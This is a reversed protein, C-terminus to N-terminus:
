NLALYAALVMVIFAAIYTLNNDSKPSQKRKEWEIQEPWIYSPDTLQEKVEAGKVKGILFAQMKKRASKSHKVDVWAETADKGAVATLVERGGPHDDLYEEKIKFVRGCVAVWLDDLSTHEGVEAMTYEKLDAM